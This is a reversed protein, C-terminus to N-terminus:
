SKLEFYVLITWCPFAGVYPILEGVFMLPRLWKLRKAAKAAKGVKGAAGQTMQATGSHFWSWGGIFMIGIIDTIFFDDLAFLLLTLGIADIAMALFLMIIGPGFLSGGGEGTRLSAPEETVGESNEPQESGAEEPEQQETEEPM